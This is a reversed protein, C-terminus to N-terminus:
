EFVGVSAAFDQRVLWRLLSDLLSKWDKRNNENYWLGLAIYLHIQPHIMSGNIALDAYRGLRQEFDSRKIEGHKEELFFLGNGVLLKSTRTVALRRSPLTADRLSGQAQTPGAVLDSVQCAM